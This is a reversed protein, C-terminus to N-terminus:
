EFLRATEETISNFFIRNKLRRLEEFESWMDENNFGSEKKKFVDIDLLIGIRDPKSSVPMAQVINASVDKEHIVVRTLFQNVEQPLSKPIQPPAKLYRKFDKIPLELEITNIYRVAIRTILEPMAKSSYLVWLRKAEELVTEWKTYPKLRSFTFGDIRFQVININAASNFRYGQVGRGQLSQEIQKGEIKVGFEILRMDKVEPYDKQLTEKLSLFEAVEVSSPNKVRIDIVAEVIPANKLHRQRAM